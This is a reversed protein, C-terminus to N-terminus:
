IYTSYGSERGDVPVSVIRVQLPRTQECAFM